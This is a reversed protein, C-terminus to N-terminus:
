LMAINELVPSMDFFM